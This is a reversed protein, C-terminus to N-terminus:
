ENVISPTTEGGEKKEDEIIEMRALKSRTVSLEENIYGVRRKLTTTKPNAKSINEASAAKVFADQLFKTFLIQM